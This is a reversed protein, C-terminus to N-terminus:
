NDTEVYIRNIGLQVATVTTLAANGAHASVGMMANVTPTTTSVSAGAETGANTDVIRWYITTDNPKAFMYLDYGKGSVATYGTSTKTGTATARTLLSIAGNDAADICFGVSNNNSSPDASVVGGAVNASLGVFMRGGNTWVDFGVRAFFFFGGQGATNSLFYSANSTQRVGLIQNLTTVVNAYRGRQQATYLSTTTPVGATFTGVSTTAGLSGYWLGATASTPTWTLVTNQWLAAQLPTDLGSPGKVKPVMRGSVAKAYYRLTSAAPTSPETTIAGIIIGPDTGLLQVANSADRQVLSAANATLFVDKTGAAFSVAAGTSSSLLTTRALTTGSSTYTGIGSEWAGTAGDVIMYICTDGTAMAGGFNNYGTPATGSLTVTGTGTTTTTDRIRDGVIHAM